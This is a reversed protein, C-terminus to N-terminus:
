YCCFFLLFVKKLCYFILSHKNVKGDAEFRSANVLDRYPQTLKSLILSVIKEQADKGNMNRASTTISAGENQDDNTDSDSSLYKRKNRNIESDIIMESESVSDYKLHDLSMSNVNSGNSITMKEDKNWEDKLISLPAVNGTLSIFM